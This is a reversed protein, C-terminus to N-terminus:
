MFSLNIDRFRRKLTSTMHWSKFELPAPHGFETTSFLTEQCLCEAGIHVRQPLVVSAVFVDLIIFVNFCCLGM